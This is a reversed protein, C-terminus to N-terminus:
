LSEHLLRRWGHLKLLLLINTVILSPSPLLLACKHWEIVQQYTGNNGNNSPFGNSYMLGGMPNGRLDAGHPDLEGGYDDPTLNILEQKLFGVVQLYDPTKM